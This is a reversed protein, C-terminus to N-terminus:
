GHDVSWGCTGYKKGCAFRCPDHNRWLHNSGNLFMINPTWRVSSRRNIHWQHVWRSSQSFTHSCYLASYVDIAVVSAMCSIFIASVWPCEMNGKKTLNSRKNAIFFSKKEWSSSPFLALISFHWIFKVAIKINQFVKLTLTLLYWIYSAAHSFKSFPIASFLRLTKKSGM